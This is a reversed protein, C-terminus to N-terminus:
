GGHHRRFYRRLSVLALLELALLTWLASVHADVPPLKAGGPSRVTGRTAQAM